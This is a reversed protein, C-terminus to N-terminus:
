HQDKLRLKNFLQVKIIQYILNHPSFCSLLWNGTKQKTSPISFWKTNYAQAIYCHVTIM